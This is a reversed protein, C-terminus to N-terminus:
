LIILSRNSYILHKFEDIEDNLDICILLKQELFFFPSCGDKRTLQSHQSM